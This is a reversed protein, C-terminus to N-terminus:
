RLLTIDGKRTTKSGDFFQAELTYAYVDMPQLVGKFTGDWGQNPDNTEFVKQGWRNYIRFTMSAIGFSQVKIIGNQGFRGPTFANPVDLLPNILTEVPGCATDPCEFQNYAVLCAQFTGTREYQHMVTDMNSKSASDGDGYFWKFHVAGTSNNFFITPKNPQAPIPADTFAATPRPNVTITTQTSDIINCTASDVATLKVTYTGTNPYLHIPNPDNSILSGDGFDWFFKQGALSTNNFFANYPLCGSAPTVFQAKVLPAVRLVRSTTDPYNCYNTDVMILKVIYTGPSAFSHIITPSGTVPQTNDGFDWTFSNNAFPKGAPPTSVNTFQYQLSQCPPIKATNFDLIAKDDRVLITTYTTDSINCSTSDIAILRVPYNGIKIYVHNIRNITTTTDPSGDGFRWIYTKANHITDTLLVNLPVCGSSDIRGDISAKVDAAVGAFNFAIKVAALNCGSTGAGNKTAWVGPTTPFRVGDKFYCNACIAEYIIGKKDFRSTGGDVHDSFGGNQGFYSGYRPGTANKKLVYFYFDAGDTSKQLADPSTYLGSTGSNNYNDTLNIGGGWGAVYVNECKDVLFATPSIDPFQAGKGFVTSYVYNSLDPLLKGIFQKGARNQYFVGPTVPWADSTTTGMIYPFGLKDFQIGYIVETGPTSFYSSKVLSPIPGTNDIISVFGDIGGKSVSQLVPLNKTGPFDTSATGGGVYINNNTPNLALVFAADDGNGGLYSSFLVNSLDPSLKLVVGDQTGGGFTNQFANSTPFDSSRTCSALYVNNAADLIVESRGDDGYNLRLSNNGAAVVSSYKPAINVGDDGIGGIKRSGILGTGTSNLKTLFIDFLGTNGYNGGNGAPVTPFDPSNTRGAIILNGSNDVVLSHPQENGSGGLYTGYLRKVGDPSFKMIAVDYIYGSEVNKDGGQFSTQFAGPIPPVLFGNGNSFGFSTNDLVISGSYFNGADDYTATYGWNDSRSGTFTCFVLTPDIVLVADPSYHNVRFKVTNNGTLVYRCEVETKGSNNLQYSYPALEKADGVSTKIVLQHNRIILKDPGTYKLAIKDLDAGPHLILDYKLIGGETFYRVDVNPYINKYTIGQFIRCGSAWKSPDNGIFYNNYTPLPKDPVIEVNEQANVFSVEYFHSHILRSSESNQLRNKPDAKAPQEGGRGAAHSHSLEEMRQLDAPKHLLVSFGKKQLFFSGTSMEARFNLSPDWQGKNEIFELTSYSGQAALRLTVAMLLGSVILLKKGM